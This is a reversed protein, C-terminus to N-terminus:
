ELLFVKWLNGVKTFKGGFLDGLGVIISIGGFHICGNLRGLQQSSKM